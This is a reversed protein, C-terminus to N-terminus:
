PASQSTQIACGGSGTGTIGNGSCVQSGLTSYYIQSEGTATGSNDIIVGTTGGTASIGATPTGTTGAGEVNFNYLCDGSCPTLNGDAEVSVYLWDDPSNYFETVPSCAAAVSTATSFTNVTVDTTGTIDVVPVQYLVGDACVYLNGTTGTGTYYANDFAGARMVTSTGAPRSTGSNNPLVVGDGFTGGQGNIASGAAFVNLYSPRDTYDSYGIFTYVREATSDVIPGDVLGGTNYALHGSTSNTTNGPPSTLASFQHLYGSADGVFIDESTSDYVLSDLAPTTETSATFPWGGTTTEAPTGLFVGTFKHVKGSDDGVYLTDASSYVYFPPSNSDDPSGSLTITTYCPATCGRYAGNGELAATAPSTITGGSAASPKLLVLTAVSSSTQIYALQTGDLSLVPSLSATGGTNYAWAVTPVTGTCTTAYINDYAILTAASGGAGTPYSVYDSCSPTTTASFSYKAPYVNALVTSTEGGSFDGSNPITLATFGSDTATYSNGTLGALVATLFVTNTLSAPTIAATLTANQGLATALDTALQDESDYANGNWYNFTTATDGPGNTGTTGAAYTFDSGTTPTGYGTAGADVAGLTITFTTTNTFATVTATPNPNSGTACKWTTNGTASGETGNTIAGVLNTVMTAKSAHTDVLCDGAAPTGLTANKFEYTVTSGTAGIVLNAGANATDATETLTGTQTAPAATTFEQGDVTITSSASVTGSAPASSVTITLGANAGNNMSWDKKLGSKSRAALRGELGGSNGLRQQPRFLSSAGFGNSFGPAPAVLTPQLATAGRKQQQMIFRPENVIKLWENYRGNKLADQETGPNSYVVHRTSWDEVFGGSNPSEIATEQAIAPLSFAGLAAVSLSLILGYARTSETNSM